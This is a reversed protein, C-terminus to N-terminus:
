VLKKFKVSFMGGEQWCRKIYIIILIIIKNYFTKLKGFFM